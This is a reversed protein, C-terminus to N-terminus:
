VSIEDPKCTSLFGWNEDISNTMVMPPQGHDMMQHLVARDIPIPEPPKPFAMNHKRRYEDVLVLLVDGIKMENHIHVAKTSHQSLAHTTNVITAIQDWKRVRLRDNVLGHPNPNNLDWLRKGRPGNIYALDDSSGIQRLAYHIFRKDEPIHDPLRGRQPIFKSTYKYKRPTPDNHDHDPGENLKEGTMKDASTVSGSPEDTKANSNDIVVNLQATAPRSLASM